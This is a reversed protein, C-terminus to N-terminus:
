TGQFCSLSPVSSMAGAVESPELLPIFNGDNGGLGTCPKPNLPTHIQPTNLITLDLGFSM